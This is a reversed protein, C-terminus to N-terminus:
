YEKGFELQVSQNIKGFLPLLKVHYYFLKVM